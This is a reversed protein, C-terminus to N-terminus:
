GHLHLSDCLAKFEGSFLGTPAPLQILSASWAPNGEILVPGRDTIAIDWGIARAWPFVGAAQLALAKVEAWHPLQFGVFSRDTGPIAHVDTLTGRVRGRGLRGTELDVWCGVAGYLLHDVGIPKPQLKFVAALLRPAGDLAIFTQVRVCCLTPGVFDALAPHPRLREQLIYSAFDTPHHRSPHIIREQTAASRALTILREADYREGMLDVFSGPQGPARGDLVVVQHGKSGRVGKFVLGDGEFGDLWHQLEAPTKLSRGDRTQGMAPDYVGYTEALPMGLARFVLEFVLKNAYILRHHKPTLLTPLREADSIYQLKDQRTLGPEFLRYQLYDTMAFSRTMRLLTADLVVPAFRRGREAALAKADRWIRAASKLSGTIRKAAQGASSM